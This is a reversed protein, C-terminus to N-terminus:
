GSQDMSTQSRNSAIVELLSFVTQFEQGRHVVRQSADYTIVGAEALMPLHVHHLSVVRDDHTRNDTRTAEADGLHTALQDVTTPDPSEAIRRLIRRRQQKALLRLATETSIERQLDSM